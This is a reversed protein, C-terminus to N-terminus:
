LLMLVVVVLSGEECVSPFADGWETNGHDGKGHWGCVLEKLPPLVTGGPVTQEHSLVIATAIINVHSPLM